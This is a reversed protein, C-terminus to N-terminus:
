CIETDKNSRREPVKSISLSQYTSRSHSPFMVRIQNEIEAEWSRPCAKATEDVMWIKLRIRGSEIKNRYVGLRKRAREPAEMWSEKARRKGDHKRSLAVLDVDIHTYV